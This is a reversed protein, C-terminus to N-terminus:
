LHSKHTNFKRGLLMQAVQEAQAQLWFSSCCQIGGPGRALPPSAASAAKRCQNAPKLCVLPARRYWPPSCHPVIAHVATVAAAAAADIISKFLHVMNAHETNTFVVTEKLTTIYFPLWNLLLCPARHLAERGLCAMSVSGVTTPHTVQEHSSANDLGCACLLVWDSVSRLRLPLVCPNRTQINVSTDVNAVQWLVLANHAVAAETLRM